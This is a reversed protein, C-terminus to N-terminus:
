RTFASVTLAIIVTNFVFTLVTHGTVIGRLRSSTVSVDTTGFTTAIAASFYCFDRFNPAAEGPFALGGGAAYCRAYHLAYSLTVVGWSTIVTAVVLVTLVASQGPAPGFTDIRPLLAAAALAFVALQVALGPGVDAGIVLLRKWWRTPIDSVLAPLDDATARGFVRVTLFAYTISWTVWGLMVQFWFGFDEAAAQNLAFGAVTSFPISVAFAVWQRTYEHRFRTLSASPM